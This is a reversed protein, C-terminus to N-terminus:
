AAPLLHGNEILHPTYYRGLTIYYQAPSLLKKILADLDWLLSKEVEEPRGPRITADLNVFDANHSGGTFGSHDELRIFFTQVFRAPANTHKCHLVTIASAIDEKLEKSLERSHTLVYQPM